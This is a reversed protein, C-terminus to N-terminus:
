ARLEEVVVGCYAGAGGQTLIVAGDGWESPMLIDQLEYRDGLPFYLYHFPWGFAQAPVALDAMAAIATQVVGAKGSTIKQGEATFTDASCTGSFYNNVGDTTGTVWTIDLPRGLVNKLPFMGVHRTDADDINFDVDLRQCPMNQQLWEIFHDYRGRFPQRADNDLSLRLHTIDTSPATGEEETYVGLGIIPWQHPLKIVQDGSAVTTFNQIERTSIFGRYGPTKNAETIHMLASIEATATVFGTTASVANGNALNYDIALQVNQYKSLDLGYQPDGLYRGFQIPFTAEQVINEVESMVNRPPHGDRHWFHKFAEKGTLSFLRQDGNAIIELKNIVEPIYADENDTSGNTARFVVDLGSLGGRVPLDYKFVAADSTQTQRDILAQFGYRVM